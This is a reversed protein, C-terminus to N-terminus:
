QTTILEAGRRRSAGAGGPAIWSIQSTIINVLLALVAPVPMVVLKRSRARPIVIHPIVVASLALMVAVMAVPCTAASRLRGPEHQTTKKHIEVVAVTVVM